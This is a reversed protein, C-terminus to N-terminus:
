GVRQEATTAVNKVVTEPRPHRAQLRSVRERAETMHGRGLTSHADKRTRWGRAISGGMCWLRMPKTKGFSAMRM